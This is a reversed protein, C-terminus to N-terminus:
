CQEGTVMQGEWGGGRARGMSVQVGHTEQGWGLARPVRNSLGHKCFFLQAM